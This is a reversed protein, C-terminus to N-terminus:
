SGPASPALLLAALAVGYRTAPSHPDTTEPAIVAALVARTDRAQEVIAMRERAGQANRAEALWRTVRAGQAPATDIPHLDGITLGLDQALTERFEALRSAVKGNYGAVVLRVGDSSNPSSFVCSPAPAGPEPRAGRPLLVVLGSAGEGWVDLQAASIQDLSVSASDRVTAALSLASPFAAALAGITPVASLRLFHLGCAIVPYLKPGADPASGETDNEDPLAGMESPQTQDPPPFSTLEVAALARVWELREEAPVNGDPTRAVAGVSLTAGRGALDTRYVRIGDRGTMVTRRVLAGNSVHLRSWGPVRTETFLGSGATKSLALLNRWRTRAVAFAWEPTAPNPPLATLRILLALDPHGTSARCFDGAQELKAGPPVVAAAGTKPEVWIAYPASALDPLSVKYEAALRKVARANAATAMLADLTRTGRFVLSLGGCTVTPPGAPLTGTEAVPQASTAYAFLSSAEGTGPLADTSGPLQRLYESRMAWSISAAGQQLGGSGIGVVEGAGNVVPAGSDGPQLPGSLHLVRSDLSPFHLAQLQARATDDLTSSLAPFLDNAFTVQLRTNTPAQIGLPFGWAEVWQEPSVPQDAMQLPPADPPDTVTLLALDAARLVKAVVAQRVTQHLAGGDRVFYLVDLTPECGAVVHMDTVVQRKPGWVFGSAIRNEGSTGCTSVVKVLSPLIKAGLDAGPASDQPAGQAAALGPCFVLCAAILTRM